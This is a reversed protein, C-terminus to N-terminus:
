AAAVGGEAASQRRHQRRRRAIPVSSSNRHGPQPQCRAVRQQVVVAAAPVRGQCRQGGACGPPGAARAAAAAGPWCIGAPPATHATTTRVRLTCAHVSRPHLRPCCAAKCSWGACRACVRMRVKARATAGDQVVAVLVDVGRSEVLMRGCAANRSLVKLVDTAEAQVDASASRALELLQPLAGALGVAQQLDDKDAAIFFLAILCRRVLSSDAGSLLSLIPALGGAAVIEAAAEDSRALRGLARMAGKKCALLPCGRLVDILVAVAGHSMMQELAEDQVALASLTYAAYMKGRESAACLLQLLQPVVGARVVRARAEESDATANFLGEAAAARQEPTSCSDQLAALLQELTHGKDQQLADLPADDSAAGPDRASPLSDQGQLQEHFQVLYQLQQQQEQQQKLLAPSNTVAAQLSRSCEAPAATDESCAWDEGNSPTQRGAQGFFKRIKAHLARQKM